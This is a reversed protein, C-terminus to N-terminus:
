KFQSIVLSTDFMMKDFMSGVRVYNKLCRVFELTNMQQHHFQFVRNKAEFSRVDFKSSLLAKVLNVLNSISCVRVDNKLCRVFKFTNMQQHDFEVM